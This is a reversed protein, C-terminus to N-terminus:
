LRILRGAITQHIGEGTAKLREFIRSARLQQAWHYRARYHRTSRPYRAGRELEIRHLASEVDARHHAPEIEVVGPESRLPAMWRFIPPSKARPGIVPPFLATPFAFVRERHSVHHRCYDPRLLNPTHGRPLVNENADTPVGYKEHPPRGRCYGGGHETAR